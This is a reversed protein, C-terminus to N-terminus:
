IAAGMGRSGSHSLLGLYKGVPLGWENEEDQITVEGLEVFHNGGGSSGIQKAAKAQLEKLKPIDDFLPSALVQHDMPEKFTERGFKSNRMIMGRLSANHEDIDSTPMPFISLCMRCGIDVGVGYPIVANETALVGGIPLGYGQHADPMLAGARAIPLRMATIMQGKAGEEIGEEGFIQFPLADEHLSHLVKPPKTLEQTFGALLEHELYDHPSELAKKFRVEATSPNHEILKEMVELGLGIAPGEPVGWEKLTTRTINQKM